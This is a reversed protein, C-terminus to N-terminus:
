LNAGHGHPYHGQRPWLGDHLLEQRCWDPWLCVSQLQLRTPTLSPTLRRPIPCSVCVVAYGDSTGDYANALVGVGIDKWVTLQGAYKPDDRPVFSDYSYDFVFNRKKEANHGTTIPASDTCMM